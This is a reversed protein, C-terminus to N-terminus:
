WRGGILGQRSRLHVNLLLGTMGLWSILSTGGYSLFPLPLGTVPMLGVNMGVNVFVQIILLGGVGSAVIMADRDLAQSAIRLARWLLVAFLGLVSAAGVFGLEEGIVTFVFDTHNDPVFALATQTGELLGRGYTGGSGIAIMSQRTQFLAGTLDADPADAGLFGTLRELQYDRILETRLAALFAGVGAVALLLLWRVRTGSVLLVVGTLFLYTVATGLDPQVFVLAMPIMTLGVALLTRGLGPIGETEHFLMALGLLLAVKMLESPQIQQGLLTIWRQSGRVTTGLPTLVLVLLLLSGLYAFPIFPRLRRYDILAAAVMVVVGIGGALLQRGTYFTAPLGQAALSAAKASHIAVLGVGTLGLAAAVVVLDADRLPGLLALARRLPSASPDRTLASM